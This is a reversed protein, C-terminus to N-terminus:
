GQCPRIKANVCAVMLEVTNDLGIRSTNVCLDYLRADFLDEKAFTRIYAARERDNNEILKKIERDPLHYLERLRDTRAPIDAYVLFSIHCPHDRLIYRGARGLFIASREDAIRKITESELQFLDRDTPIYTSVTLGRAPDALTAMQSFTEWFSQLRGERNELETEAVQLRDAVRKLIERDLFPVGLRESLKEGVYAGGSGLTHSITIAFPNGNM